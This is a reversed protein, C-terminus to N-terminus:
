LSITNYGHSGRYNSEIIDEEYIDEIEGWPFEVPLTTDPNEESESLSFWVVIKERSQNEILIEM